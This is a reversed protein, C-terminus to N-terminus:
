GLNIIGDKIKAIVAQAASEGNLMAANISGNALHDGALFVQDKLQTESKPLMYNVSQMIPLAKEIHYFQKFEITDIGAYVKLDKTIKSKLDEM